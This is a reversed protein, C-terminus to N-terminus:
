GALALRPIQLKPLIVHKWGLIVVFGAYWVMSQKTDKLRVFKGRWLLTFQIVTFVRIDSCKESIISVM